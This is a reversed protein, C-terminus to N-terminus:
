YKREEYVAYLIYVTLLLNLKRKEWWWWGKRTCIKLVKVYLQNDETEDASHSAMVVDSFFHYILLFSSFHTWLVCIAGGEEKDHSGKKLPQTM